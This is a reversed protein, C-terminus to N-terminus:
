DLERKALVVAAVIGALLLVGAAEVALLYDTYLVAAVDAVTGFSAPVDVAIRQDGGLLTALKVAAMALVGAGVLKMVPQNEAGLATSRLNLLMIVFVFLVVIAGAYVLVQLIGIFEAHLLIFLGSLALMAVLLCLAANVTNRVNALMGLSSLVALGGFSYFLAQEITM